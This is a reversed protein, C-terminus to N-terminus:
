NFCKKIDFNEEKLEKIKQIIFYRMFNMENLSINKNEYEKLISYIVRVSECKEGKDSLIIAYMQKTWLPASNPSNDKLKKAIELALDKDKYINNALFLAQYYWWWKKQPDKDAHQTLYNIIYITDKENQTMSFYYSAMSPIYNSKSDLKDLLMFWQYLKSYDYNKLPSFRGYTDGSNQIRLGKYRFLFQDDGLSLSKITGITPVEPVIGLNPKINETKFWFLIQFIFFILVFFIYNQFFSYNISNFNKKILIM